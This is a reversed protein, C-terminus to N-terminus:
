FLRCQNRRGACLRKKGPDRMYLELYEPSESYDVKLFTNECPDVLLVDYEVGDLIGTEHKVQPRNRRKRYINIATSISRRLYHAKKDRGLLQHRAKGADATRLGFFLSVILALLRGRPM